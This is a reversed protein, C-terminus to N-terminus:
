TKATRCWLCFVAAGPHLPPTGSNWQRAFEHQDLDISMGNPDGTIYVGDFCSCDFRQISPNLSRVGDILADLEQYIVADADIARAIEDNTRGVAILESPTPMDIGYVNPFRV